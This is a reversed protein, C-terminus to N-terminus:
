HRFIALLIETLILIVVIIELAETRYTAAQDSVVEYIGELITIERRINQGWEDLHFRASLQHFLRAVYPDGVLTLASSAREFMENIEVNLEGLARLPRAHRRFIPLRSRALQHILGYAAKLRADLRHDINRFELLQLNAFAMTELIENCERDVVVAASWDTVILDDPSYSLRLRLADAIESESLPGAELRSLGALWGPYQALLQAPSPTGAEPILQFVFYEESLDSWAPQDIAPLLKHYVPELATRAAQIFVAPDSLGGALQTLSNQDLRFPVHMALSAAGFDFLTLDASAEVTELVPLKLPLPPMNRRLPPPQYAISPPTRAKRPLAHLEAPVLQRAKDIDVEEGWDFAVFTHLLGSYLPTSEFTSADPV